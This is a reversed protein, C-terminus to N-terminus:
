AATSRPGSLTTSTRSRAYGGAAAAGRRGPRRADPVRSGPAAGDVDRRGTSTPSSAGAEDLYDRLRSRWPVARRQRPRRVVLRDAGRVNDLVVGSRWRDLVIQWGSPLFPFGQEVQRTWGRESRRDPGPLALDFRFEKRHQGIFDLVTLVAKGQPPTSRPRAAPPLHDRERDPPPVARHRGRTPRPGRQLPGRRLAGQGRPGCGRSRTAREPAPDDGDRRPQSARRTSYEAMYERTRWRSVSGSRVCARRRRHRTAYRAQPRDPGRTTAPTSRELTRGPRLAGRKWELGHLDMDDDVGFYHFPCLLGRELADWLRLEVAIRGDFLERVDVGDAREPTATLGLLESRGAPPRPAPPVDAGRRPPVRRDVVVDFHEPAHQRHLARHAVPRHRVRAAVTRGTGPSSSEGFAGDGLVQRYTRLAQDLIEKRHAVFLLTPRTRASGRAATTSHRSSRRGRGPRPWWWTATGDHVTREVDLAELM